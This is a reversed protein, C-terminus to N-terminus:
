VVDHDSSSSFAGNMVINYSRNGCVAKLLLRYPFAKSFKAGVLHRFRAQASNEQSVQFEVIGSM